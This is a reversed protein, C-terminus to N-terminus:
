IIKDKRAVSFEIWVMISSGVLHSAMAVHIPLGRLFLSILIYGLRKHMAWEMKGLEM